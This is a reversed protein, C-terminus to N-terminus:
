GQLSTFSSYLTHFFFVGKRYPSVLRSPQLAGQWSSGGGSGGRGSQLPRNHETPEGLSPGAQMQSGKQGQQSCVQHDRMRQLPGAQSHLPQRHACRLSSGFRVNWQEM